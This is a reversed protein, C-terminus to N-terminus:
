PSVDKSKGMSDTTGGVSRRLVERNERLTTTYMCLTKSRPSDVRRERYRTTHYHRGNMGVVDANGQCKNRPEIAEGACVGVSAQRSMKRCCAWPEPGAQSAVGISYPEEM